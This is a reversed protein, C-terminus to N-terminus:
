CSTPSKVSATAFSFAPLCKVCHQDILATNNTDYCSPTGVWRLCPNIKRNNKGGEFRERVILVGENVAQTFAGGSRENLDDFLLVNHCAAVKRANLIDMYAGHHRHDGDILIVDCPAEEGSMVLDAFKTVTGKAGNEDYSSGVHFKIRGPFSLSLLDYTRKSYKYAGLDFSVVDLLPDSLLMAVTGHGGNVGIECYRKKRGQPDVMALTKTYEEMQHRRIYGYMWKAGVNFVGDTNKLLYTKEMLRDLINWWTYIATLRENNTRPTFRPVPGVSLAADEELYPPAVGNNHQEAGLTRRTEERLGANDRFTEALWLQVMMLLAIGNLVGWLTFQVM